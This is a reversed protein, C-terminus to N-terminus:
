ACTYIETIRWGNQVLEAHSSCVVGGGEVAHVIYAQGDAVAVVGLHHSRTRQSLYVANGDALRDTKHWGCKLAIDTAMIRAAACARSTWRGGIYKEAWHGM